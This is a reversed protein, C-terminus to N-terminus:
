QDIESESVSDKQWPWWPNSSCFCLGQGEARGALSRRRFHDACGKWRFPCQLTLKLAIISETWHLFFDHIVDGIIEMSQGLFILLCVLKAHSFPWIVLRVKMLRPLMNLLRWFCNSSAEGQRKSTWLAPDGLSDGAQFWPPPLGSRGMFRSTFKCLLYIHQIYFTYFHQTYSEYRCSEYRNISIYNRYKEIYIWSPLFTSSGLPKAPRPAGMYKADTSWTLSKAAAPPGPTLALFRRQWRGNGAKPCRIAAVARLEWHQTGRRMVELTPCGGGDNEFFGGQDFVFPVLLTVLLYAFHAFSSLVIWKCMKLFVCCLCASYNITIQSIDQALDSVGKRSSRAKKTWLPLQIYCAPCCVRSVNAMLVPARARKWVSKSWHWEWAKRWVTLNDWM